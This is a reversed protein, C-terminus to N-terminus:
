SACPPFDFTTADVEGVIINFLHTIVRTRQDAAFYDYGSVQNSSDVRVTVPIAGQYMLDWSTVRGNFEDDLMGAFVAAAQVLFDDTVLPFGPNVFYQTCNPASTISPSILFYKNLVLGDNTTNAFDFLSSGLNGDFAQDVRVKNNSPSNYLFGSTIHSLNSDRPATLLFITTELSALPHRSVM